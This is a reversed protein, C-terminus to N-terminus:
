SMGFPPYRDTILLNMYASVRLSWRTVGVVYNFLGRPYRGTILIAFWAILIAFFGFFWLIALIVYHPIALFWKVLPLWRNLDKAADPYDLDLHVAQDKTTSPYADTLLTAYAGVRTRFRALERAFDFWWRPYKVRFVIMLLTALSISTSLLGLVIGIPIVMIPRFFTTLRNLRDPYDIDLRAAYNQGSKKAM